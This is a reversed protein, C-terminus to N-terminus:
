EEFENMRAIEEEKEKSLEIKAVPRSERPALGLGFEGLDEVDGVGNEGNRTNNRKENKDATGVKESRMSVGAAM